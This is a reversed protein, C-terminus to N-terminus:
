PAEDDHEHDHDHGVVETEWGDYRGGQARALSWLSTTADRLSALVPIDERSFQIGFDDQGEPPNSDAMWTYGLAEIDARFAARQVHSHFYAWYEIPRLAEFAEGGAKLAEWGQRDQMHERELASPQLCAAFQTWQPDLQEETQVQAGAYPGLTAFFHEVQPAAQSLYFMFDCSGAGIRQGAHVAMVGLDSSLADGLISLSEREAHECLGAPNPSLLPVSLRFYVPWGAVPAEFALNVNIWYERGDIERLYDDWLSEM